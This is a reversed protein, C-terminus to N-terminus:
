SYSIGTCHQKIVAHNIDVYIGFYVMITSQSMSTMFPFKFCLCYTFVFIGNGGMVKEVRKELYHICKEMAGVIQNKFLVCHYSAYNYPDPNESRFEHSFRLRIELDIDKLSKKEYKM